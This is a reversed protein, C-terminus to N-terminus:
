RVVALLVIAILLLTPFENMMRYYRASYKLRDFHHYIYGCRLHFAWLWMDEIQQMWGQSLYVYASLWGSFLTTTVGAPWTIQTYLRREMVQFRARGAADSTDVHYVFLRPLYFLGAFWAVMSILHFAKIWLFM